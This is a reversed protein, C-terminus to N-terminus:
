TKVATDHTVKVRADRASSEARVAAQNTKALDNKAKQLRAKLEDVRKKAAVLLQEKEGLSRRAGEAATRANSLNSKGTEVARRLIDIQQHADKAAKNAAAVNEQARQLGLSGERVVSQTEKTEEGLQEVLAIKGILVAEAAKSARFAKEALQAKVQHSAQKAAINQADSAAKAEQAAHSAIDGKESDNKENANRIERIGSGGRPRANRDRAISDIDIRPGVQVRGGVAEFSKLNGFTLVVLYLGCLFQNVRKSM